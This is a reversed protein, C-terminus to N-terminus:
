CQKLNRNGAMKINFNSRTVRRQGAEVLSCKNARNLSKSSLSKGSNRQKVLQASKASKVEKASLTDIRNAPARNARPVASAAEPVEGAESPSGSTDSSDGVLPELSGLDGPAPSCPGVLVWDQLAPSESRPLPSPDTM